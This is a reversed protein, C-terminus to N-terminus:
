FSQSLWYGGLGVSGSAVLYRSVQFLRLSQRQLWSQVSGFGLGFVTMALLVGLSFVLLYTVAVGFQGQTVVPVLALAPASGALGHLMGVMVPAHRDTRREQSPAADDGHAEGEPQLHTHVLDGHRHSVLRLRQNRIRWFCALGIVILLVGVSAEAWHVLASPLRYGLGFLLLGALILVGGHGVAWHSSFRLLRRLGPKRSGLASVAMVHDADFAHLLGLGFATSLVALLSLSM